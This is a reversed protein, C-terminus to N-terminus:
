TALLWLADDGLPERKISGEAALEILADETAARDAAVLNRALLVAVEQTTIGDTFYEILPLPGEPPPTRVLTPDLNAILVDYAELPQFGGGELRRGDLEFVVSPATYRVLPGDMAAKGQFETPGGAATRTEAKDAECATLVEPADLAAVVADADIGRVSRLATAIAEDEDLMDTTNFWAFQLARMAAIERGPHALRTAVIARCARGTAMLRPRAQASVPMGYVDRFMRSGRASRAPTHGSLEREVIEERLVIVVLRWDIQDRYRWRLV